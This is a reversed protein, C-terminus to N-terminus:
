SDDDLRIKSWLSGYSIRVVSTGFELQAIAESEVDPEERVNALNVNIWVESGDYTFTSEDLLETTTDVDDSTIVLTNSELTVVDKKVLKTSEPDASSVPAVSVPVYPEVIELSSVPSQLSIDDSAGVDAYKFASVTFVASVSSAAFKLLTSKRIM